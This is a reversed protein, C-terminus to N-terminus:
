VLEEVTLSEVRMLESESETGVVNNAQVTGTLLGYCYATRDSIAQGQVSQPRLDALAIVPCAGGQAQDLIGELAWWLDSATGEPQGFPALEISVYPQFLHDQRIGSLDVGDQWSMVWRRRNPGEQRRRLTGYTDRRSSVNAQRARSWGRAWQQGLLTAAGFFAAGIEFYGSQTPNLSADVFLRYRSYHDGLNINARAFAIANPALIEVEGAALETGDIGELRVQPRQVKDVSDRWAGATNWVIRRVKPTGNPDLVAHGGVWEGAQVFRASTGGTPTMIDGTLTYTAGSNLTDLDFPLVQIGQWAAGDWGQLAVQSLNTGFIGLIWNGSGDPRTDRDWDLVISQDDTDNASRWRVAPSPSEKPFIASIPYDYAPVAELTETPIAPGRKSAIRTLNDRESAYPFPQSYASLWRGRLAGRTDGGDGVDGAAPINGITTDNFLMHFQYWRSVATGVDVHGWLIRPSLPGAGGDTLPVFPGLPRWEHLFGRPKWWVSAVAGLSGRRYHFFLCIGTTMDHAVTALDAAAQVDHIRFGLTDARFEVEFQNVANGYIWRFGCDLATQSGGSQVDMELYVYASDNVLSIPTFGREWRTAGAATSVQMAGPAVLSAGAAGVVAYMPASPGPPAPDFDHPLDLPIWTIADGAPALPSIAAATAKGWAVRRAMRELGTAAGAVPTEWRSWGGLFWGGISGEATATAVDSEVRHAMFAGGQTAIVFPRDIQTDDTTTELLGYAGLNWTAGRDVSFAHIWGTGDRCGVWLTGDPEAFGYHSQTSITTSVPDLAVVTSAQGLSDFASSLRAFRIVSPTTTDIWSVGFGGGPLAYVRVARRSLVSLQGVLRWTLGLDSSALQWFDGGSGRVFALIEGRNYAAARSLDANATNGPSVNAQGWAEWTVGQDRSIRTEIQWRGPFPAAEGGIGIHVIWGNESVVVAPGQRGNGTAVAPRWDQTSNNWVRVTSGYSVVPEGTVPLRDVGYLVAPTGAAWYVARWHNPITHPNWGKWDSFLSGSSLKHIWQAGGPQPGGGIQARWTVAESQGGSLELLTESDTESALFQGPRPGAQTYDSDEPNTGQPALKSVTWRPDLVAIGQPRQDKRTTM